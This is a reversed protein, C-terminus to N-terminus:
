ELLLHVNWWSGVGTDTWCTSFWETPHHYLPWWCIIHVQLLGYASTSRIYLHQVTLPSLCKRAATREELEEMPEEQWKATCLLQSQQPPRSDCPMSRHRWDHGDAKKDNTPTSNHRICSVPRCISSKDVDKKRLLRRLASIPLSPWDAKFLGIWIHHIRLWMQFVQVKNLLLFLDNRVYVFFVVFVPSILVLLLLSLGFFCLFTFCIKPSPHPPSSPPLFPSHSSCCFITHHIFYGDICRRGSIIIPQHSHASIVPPFLM